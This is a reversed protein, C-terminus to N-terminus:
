HSSQELIQNFAILMDKFINWKQKHYTTTKFLISKSFVKHESVRSHWAQTIKIKIELLVKIVLM